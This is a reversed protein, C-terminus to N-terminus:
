DHSGHCRIGHVDCMSSVICVCWVQIARNCCLWRDYIKFWNDKDWYTLELYKKRGAYTFRINSIGDNPHITILGDLWLKDITSYTIDALEILDKSDRPIFSVKNPNCLRNSLFSVGQDIVELARLLKEDDDM